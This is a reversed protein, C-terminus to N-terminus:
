NKVNFKGFDILRFCYEVGCVALFVISHTGKCNYFTSGANKPAQIM